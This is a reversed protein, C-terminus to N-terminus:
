RTRTAVQQEAYTMQPWRPRGSTASRIANAVLKRYNPNCLRDPRSPQSAAAGGATKVWGLLPRTTPRHSGTRDNSRKEVALATSSFSDDAMPANTRMLPTLGEELIPVLYREDTLEFGDQM